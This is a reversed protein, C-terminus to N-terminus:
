HQFMEDVKLIFEIDDCRFLKDVCEGRVCPDPDCLNMKTECRKGTFGRPCDCSFDAVLDTCNAGLLCPQELCDDINNECHRGEWGETCECTYRGQPLTRCSAGNGCPNGNESCPDTTIDCNEGKFGDRCLCEFNDPGPLDKCMARDPCAGEVCDTVEDQCQLGSFGPPCECTYGQPQDVCNAGNYCPRSACEDM